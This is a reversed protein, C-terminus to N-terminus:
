NDLETGGKVSSFSFSYQNSASVCGHRAVPLVCTPLCLLPLILASFDFSVLPLYPYLFISGGWNDVMQDLHPEQSGLFSAYFAGSPHFGCGGPFFSSTSRAFAQPIGAPAERFPPHIHLYHHGWIERASIWDASPCEGSGGLALRPLATGKGEQPGDVAGVHSHHSNCSQSPIFGQGWGWGWGRRSLLGELCIHTEKETLCFCSLDSDPVTSFFPPM